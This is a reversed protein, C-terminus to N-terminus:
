RLARASHELWLLGGPLIPGTDLVLVGLEGRGDEGRREEDQKMCGERGGGGGGLGRSECWDLRRGLWGSMEGLLIWM